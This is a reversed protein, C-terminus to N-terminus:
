RLAWKLYLYVAMIIGLDAAIVFALDKWGFRVRFNTDHARVASFLAGALGIYIWLLYHYAFSLFFIGVCLGAFAALLAMAWPRAVGVAASATAADLRRVHVLVNVPIKISL